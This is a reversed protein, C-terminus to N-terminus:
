IQISPMYRNIEYEKNGYQSYVKVKAQKKSLMPHRLHLAKLNNPTDTFIYYIKDEKTILPYFLNRKVPSNLSSQIEEISGNEFELIGISIGYKKCAKRLKESNKESIIELIENESVPAEDSSKIRRKVNYVWTDVYTNILLTLSKIFFDKKHYLMVTNEEKDSLEAKEYKLKMWNNLSWATSEASESDPSRHDNWYGSLFRLSSLFYNPSPKTEQRIFCVKDLSIEDFHGNLSRINKSLPKYFICGPCHEEIAQRLRSNYEEQSLVEIDAPYVEDINEIIVAETNQNYGDIFYPAFSVGKQVPGSIEYNEHMQLLSFEAPLPTTKLIKYFDDFNSCGEPLLYYAEHYYIAEM